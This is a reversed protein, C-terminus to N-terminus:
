GYHAKCLLLCLFSYDCHLRCNDAIGYFHWGQKQELNQILM